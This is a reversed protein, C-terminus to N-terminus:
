ARARPFPSRDAAESPSPGRRDRQALQPQLAPAGFAQLIYPHLIYPHMRMYTTGTTSRFVLFAPTLEIQEGGPSAGYVSVNTSVGPGAGVVTPGTGSPEHTTPECHTAGEREENECGANLSSRCGNKM